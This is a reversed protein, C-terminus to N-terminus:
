GNSLSGVPLQVWSRAILLGVDYGNRRRAMSAAQTNAHQKCHESRERWYRLGGVFRVAIVDHGHVSAVHGDYTTTSVHGVTSRGGEDVIEM